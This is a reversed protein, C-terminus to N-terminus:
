VIATVPNRHPLPATPVPTVPVTRSKTAPYRALNNAAVGRASIAISIVALSLVGALVVVKLHTARDATILSGNMVFEALQLLSRILWSEPRSYREHM